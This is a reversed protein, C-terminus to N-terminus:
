KNLERLVEVIYHCIITHLNECQTMSTSSFTIALNALKAMEGGGYGCIAVTYARILKAYEFAKICNKSNGSGSIGILIDTNELHNKLQEVFIDDYSIDNSIATILPINDTLSIVKLRPSHKNVIPFKSLDNAFHSATAASGGNGMIYIRDSDLIKRTLNNIKNFNEDDISPNYNILEILQNITETLYSKLFNKYIDM